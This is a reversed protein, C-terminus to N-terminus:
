YYLQLQITPNQANVSMLFPVAKVNIIVDEFSSEWSILSFSVCSFSMLLPSFHFEICHLIVALVCSRQTYYLVARCLFSSFVTM